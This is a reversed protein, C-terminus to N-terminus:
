ATAQTQREHSSNGSPAANFFLSVSDLVSTQTRRGALGLAIVRLLPGCAIPGPPFGGSRGTKSLLRAKESQDRGHAM